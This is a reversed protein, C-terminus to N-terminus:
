VESKSDKIPKPPQQRALVKIGWSETARVTDPSLRGDSILEAVKRWNSANVIIKDEWKVIQAQDEKSIGLHDLMVSFGDMLMESTVTVGDSTKLGETIDIAGSLRQSGILAFIAGLEQRFQTPKVVSRAYSPGININANENEFGAGRGGNSKKMLEILRSRLENQETERVAIEGDLVAYRRAMNLFEALESITLQPQSDSEMRLSADTAPVKEERFRQNTSFHRPYEFGQPIVVAMDVPASETIPVVFGTAVEQSVREKEM